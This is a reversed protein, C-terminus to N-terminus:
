EFIDSGRNYKRGLTLIRSIDRARIMASVIGPSTHLKRSCPQCSIHLETRKFIFSLCLQSSLFRICLPRLHIGNHDSRNCQTPASRDPCRSVVRSLLQSYFDLPRHGSILSSYRKQDKIETPILPLVYTEYFSIEHFSIEDFSNRPYPM